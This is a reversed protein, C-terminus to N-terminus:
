KLPNIKVRSGESHATFEPAYMCQISTIGNSFNGATSARLTYEFVYSGKSLHNIFFNTSADRTTEYYGLGGQWRYSSLVNVPEFGSARLDKMHLYEMERDARLEIRVKIKDGVRIRTQATVPELEPGRDGVTEIFLQKRLQLPTEAFSIKDMNEHYQWYVAGWSPLRSETAQAATDTITVEIAGMTPNVKSGPIVRKFYGTGATSAEPSITTNGLQIRVRPERNLWDNGNLLLAYCAEATARTSEWHNTQKNKLLWTRLADTTQRDGAIEDFAEIILAQREVPADYWWWSHGQSQYYMGMEEDHVATEKLSNLIATPTVRDQDRHRVLAIMAQMYKNQEVWTAAAREKFYAVAKTAAAPIPLDPFFSRMYLYQIVYYDPRYKKLDTKKRILRAYNENIRQDLYPLAAQVLAHLKTKQAAPIAKLQQLHGIGTVIYQTMYQDDPGGKFWVFGGNPSQLEKLKDYAKDLERSMRVLDFLLAINKKQAAETRAELVWPTEELLVSRLNENKQLNSLLATTDATAWQEFVKRIRPASNAVRTALSNAYYKNWTQEACEYPYQMMYPLAQVAYWAPNASYEITLSETTLTESVASNKLKDFSFRHTGTGRVALPLSETVLMRNSLVPLVNTEGDSLAVTKPDTVRAIIRWSLAQSFQFPVELPFNVAQSQGAALTFYQQPIVNKFWGDVAEGTSTNFLELSAIGTIEKDSLNVIKTSLELRDGERLFRPINPQVMLEKQTVMERSSYGFALEPTHALAQFKWRTLAEPMTFSFSINGASDTKLEPFFFATENFNQRIQPEDAAATETPSETDLGAAKGELNDAMEPAPAAAMDVSGTIAMKRQAGYGVVMVENLSTRRDALLNLADYEKDFHVSSQNIGDNTRSQTHIFNQTGTWHFDSRNPNWLAPISWRHPYFQDLSADYMGALMEAALKENKKGAIHVTWKEAAGPLTKDRFSSYTINLEKNTWPVEIGPNLTFVRNNKVFIYSLGYGGRDAETATFDFTKAKGNLRYFSYESSGKDIGQILFVNTAATSINVRTHAGPEIPQPGEFNLYRPVIATSSGPQYLELHRVIKVPAASSGPNLASLEIAYYGPPLQQQLSLQGASDTTFERSLLKEGRKWSSPQDEDDYIDHPFYRIYDQKSLVFTDPAEWYRPRLLRQEPELRYIELRVPTQLRQGSMNESHVTLTKLSDAEMREPLPLQLIYPQYGVALQRSSSRTEGNIDTVDAYIMYNFIPSLAPDVSADPLAKFRVQFRGQEDTQTSGSSIETPSVRPWWGRHFLWPYPFRAQRVVRYKVMAADLPNGAYAMAQGPVTVSDNLQYGDKNEELEVYFKPRKYEEMRISTRGTNGPGQLQLLGNLGSEPLRFSGNFSGYANTSLRLSDIRQHHADFLTITTTHDPLVKANKGDQGRSITIGKFFVTQGPRYLSRDTFLFIHTSNKSSADPSRDGNYYYYHAAEEDLFLRDDGHRIDFLYESSSVLGNKSGAAMRFYGQQDTHYKGKRTYTYKRTDYDYARTYTQIAAEALPQGSDRHLVFFDRGTHVFSINSSNILSRGLINDAISFDPKLSGLLYYAGVPLGDAKIEVRHEVLDGGDPLEQEWSKFSPAAALQQFFRHQERQERAAKLAPTERVVRLYLKDMNKFKVLVRFPQQPINVKEAEFEFQPRVLQHYLNAANARGESASDAHMLGLALERARILEASKKRPSGEPESGQQQHWLAMLYVAQDVAPQGTYSAALQQLAQYYLSDKDPHVANEYVFQLREIDLDILAAPDRDKLHFALLQQYLQLAKHFLSLSDATEFHATAFERASSFAAADRIEFKYAPRSLDRENNKFYDLALHALLDYLTPRLNRSNGKEILAEWDTLRTQQLVTADELSALYGASIKRHFDDITWTAPDEKVFDVTNTRDYLLYRHQQFYQLYLGALYSNLLSRVPPRTQAIEQETERISALLNDERNEEQLTSMYVLAKVLQAGQKDKRAQDYIKKVTKLASAPLGKRIASDAKKWDAEYNKIQQANSTM